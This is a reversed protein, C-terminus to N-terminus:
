AHCGDSASTFESQNRETIYLTIKDNPIREHPFDGLLHGAHPGGFEWGAKKAEACAIRYLEEGTM